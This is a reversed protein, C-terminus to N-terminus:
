FLVTEKKETELVSYKKLKEKLDETLKKMRELLKAKKALKSIPKSNSCKPTFKKSSVNALNLNEKNPTQGSSELFQNKM